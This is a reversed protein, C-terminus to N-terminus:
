RLLSQNIYMGCHQRPSPVRIYPLVPLRNARSGAPTSGVLLLLCGHWQSLMCVDTFQYCCSNDACWTADRKMYDAQTIAKASGEIQVVGDASSGLSAQKTMSCVRKNGGESLQIIQQPESM